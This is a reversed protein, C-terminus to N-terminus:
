ERSLYLVTLKGKLADDGYVAKLQEALMQEAEAPQFQRTAHNDVAFKKVDDWKGVIVDTVKAKAFTDGGDTVGLNLVTGVETKAWKEGARFTNFVGDTGTKDNFDIRDSARNSTAPTETKKDEFKPKPAETQKNDM